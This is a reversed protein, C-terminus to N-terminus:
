LKKQVDDSELECLAHRGIWASIRDEQDAPAKANLIAAKNRVGNRKGESCLAINAAKKVLPREDSNNRAIESCM